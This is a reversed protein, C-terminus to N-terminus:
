AARSRPEAGDILRASRMRALAYRNVQDAAERARRAPALDIVAEIACEAENWIVQIDLARRREDEGDLVLAALGHELAERSFRRTVCGDEREEFVDGYQAVAAVVAESPPAVPARPAALSAAPRAARFPPSRRTPFAAQVTM